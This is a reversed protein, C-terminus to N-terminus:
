KFEEGESVVQVEGYLDRAIEEMMEDLQQKMIDLKIIINKKEM